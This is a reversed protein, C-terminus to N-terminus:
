CNNYKSVFFPIFSNSFRNTRSPPAALRDIKKLRTSRHKVLVPPLISRYKDSRLLYQGFELILSLHREQLSPIQLTSLALKYETFADCLIVKVARKQISELQDSLYITNNVQPGWVPCAYELIPRIYTLCAIRLQTVSFGFRRMLILTRMASNAKKIITDVHLSFSCDISFKVGLVGASSESPYLLPPPCM